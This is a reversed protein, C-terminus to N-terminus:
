SEFRDCGGNGPTSVLGENINHYVWHENDLISFTDLGLLEDVGLSLTLSLLNSQSDHYIKASGSMLELSKHVNTNYDVKEVLSEALMFTWVKAKTCKFTM